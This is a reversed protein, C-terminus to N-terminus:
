AAILKDGIVLYGKFSYVQDLRVDESYLHLMFTSKSQYDGM